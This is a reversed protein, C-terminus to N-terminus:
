HSPYSKLHHTYGGGSLAGVSVLAGRTILAPYLELGNPMRTTVEGGNQRTLTLIAYAVIHASVDLNVVAVIAHDPVPRYRHFLVGIRFPNQWNTVPERLQLDVCLRSNLFGASRVSSWPVCLGSRRDRLGDSGIELVPDGRAADWFCTFAAGICSVGFWVGWIAMFSVALVFMGSNWLSLKDGVPGLAGSLGIGCFVGTPLFILGAALLLLGLWFNKVGDSWAVIPL